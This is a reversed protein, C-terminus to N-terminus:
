FLGLYSKETLLLTRLLTQHHLQERPERRAGLGRVELRGLQWPWQVASRYAGPLVEELGCWFM